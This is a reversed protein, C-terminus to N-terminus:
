ATEKWITRSLAPDDGATIKLGHSFAASRGFGRTASRVKGSVLGPQDGGPGPFAGPRFSPMLESPKKATLRSRISPTCAGGRTPRFALAGRDPPGAKWRVKCPKQQNQMPTSGEQADPGDTFRTATETAGEEGQVLHLVHEAADGDHLDAAQIMGAHMSVGAEREHMVSPIEVVRFGLLIMQIIMNADPYVFNFNQFQSYYMFRGAISARCAPPPTSSRRRRFHAARDLPVDPHGAEEGAFDPVFPQKGSVPLRDRYGASM